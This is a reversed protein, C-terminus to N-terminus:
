FPPETVMTGQCRTTTIDDIRFTGAEWREIMSVLGSNTYHCTADLGVSNNAEQNIMDLMQTIEDMTSGANLLTQIMDDTYSVHIDDARVYFECMGDVEGHIEYYSTMTQRLGLVEINYTHSVSSEQCSNAANIFCNIDDVCDVPGFSFGLGFVMVYVGIVGAIAVILIVAFMSTHSIHRKEVPKSMVPDIKPTHNSQNVLQLAEDVDHDPWGASILAHRIQDITYGKAMNSKVYAILREHVM